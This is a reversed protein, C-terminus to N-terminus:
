RVIIDTEGSKDVSKAPNEASFRAPDEGGPGNRM